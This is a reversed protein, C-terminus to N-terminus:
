LDHCINKLVSYKRYIKKEYHENSKLPAQLLLIM